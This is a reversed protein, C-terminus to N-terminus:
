IIFIDRCNEALAGYSVTDLYTHHCPLRDCSVKLRMSKANVAGGATKKGHPVARGRHPLNKVGVATM